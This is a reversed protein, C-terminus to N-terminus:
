SVTAAITSSGSVVKNNETIIFSFGEKKLAKSLLSEFSDNKSNINLYLSDTWENTYYIKVEARKELTDVLDKFLIRSFQLSLNNDQAYVHDTLVLYLVIIIFRKM